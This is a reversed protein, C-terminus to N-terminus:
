EDDGAMLDCKPCLGATCESRDDEPRCEYGFEACWDCLAAQTRSRM